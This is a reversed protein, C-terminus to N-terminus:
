HTPVVPAGALRSGVPGAVVPQRSYPVHVPAPGAVREAGGTGLLLFMSEFGRFVATVSHRMARLRM